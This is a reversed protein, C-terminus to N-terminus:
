NSLGAPCGGLRPKCRSQRIGRLPIDAPRFRIAESTGLAEIFADLTAQPNASTHLASNLANAVAKISREAPEHEDMLHIPALMQLAVGGALLVAIFMLGLPLFLRTRLSLKKWM